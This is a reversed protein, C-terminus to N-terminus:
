KKRVSKAVGDIGHKSFMAAWETPDVGNRFEERMKKGVDAPIKTRDVFATAAEMWERWTLGEGNTENDSM